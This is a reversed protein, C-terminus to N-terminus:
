GPGGPCILCHAHGASALSHPWWLWSRWSAVPIALGPYLAAPLPRRASASVWPAAPWVVAEGEGCRVRCFCLTTYPPLDVMRSREDPVAELTAKVGSWTGGAGSGVETGPRSCERGDSCGQPLSQGAPGRVQLTPTIADGKRPQQLTFCLSLSLVAGPGSHAGFPLLLLLGPCRGRTHYVWVAPSLGASRPRESRHSGSCTLGRESGRGLDNLNGWEASTRALHAPYCMHHSHQLSLSPPPKWALPWVPRPSFAPIEANFCQFLM